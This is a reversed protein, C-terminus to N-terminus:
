IALGISATLATLVVAFSIGKTAAAGSKSVTFKADPVTHGAASCEASYAADQHSCIKYSLVIVHFRSDLLDQAVEAENAFTGYCDM